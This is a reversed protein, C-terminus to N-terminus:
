RRKEDDRRGHGGTRWDRVIEDEEGTIQYFLVSGNKVM